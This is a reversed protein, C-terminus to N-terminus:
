IKLTVLLKHPGSVYPKSRNLYDERANQSAGDEERWQMNVTQDLTVEDDLSVFRLAAPQSNSRVTITLGESLHKLKMILEPSRLTISIKAQSISIASPYLRGRPEIETQVNPGWDIWLSPCAKDVIAVFAKYKPDASKIPPYKAVGAPGKIEGLDITWNDENRTATMTAASYALEKVPNPIKNYAAEIESWVEKSPSFSIEIGELEHSLNLSKRLEVIENRQNTNRVRENWDTAVFLLSGIIIGAISLLGQKTIRRKQTDQNIVSQNRWVGIVGSAFLILQSLYKLIPILV